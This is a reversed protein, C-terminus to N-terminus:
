RQLVWAGFCSCRCQVVLPEFETYHEEFTLLWCIVTLFFAYSSFNSGLCSIRNHGRIIDSKKEDKAPIGIKSWLLRHFYIGGAQRIKFSVIQLPLYSVYCALEKTCFTAFSFIKSMNFFMAQFSFYM